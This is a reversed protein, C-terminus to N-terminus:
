TLPSPAGVRWWIMGWALLQGVRSGKVPLVWKRQEASQSPALPAVQATMTEGSARPSYATGTPLMPLALEVMGAGLLLSGLGALLIGLAPIRRITHLSSAVVTAPSLVM